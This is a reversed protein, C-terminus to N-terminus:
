GIEDLVLEAARRVDNFRAKTYDIVNGCRARRHSRAFRPHTTDSSSVTWSPGVSTAARTKAM